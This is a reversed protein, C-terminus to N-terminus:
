FSGCIRRTLIKINPTIATIDGFELQSTILILANEKGVKPVSSNPLLCFKYLKHLVKQHNTAHLLSLHSNMSYWSKNKPDYQKSVLHNNLALYLHICTVVQFNYVFHADNTLYFDFLFSQVESRHRETVNLKQLKENAQKTGTQVVHKCQLLLHREGRIHSQSDCCSVGHFPVHFQPQNSKHLHRTLPSHLKTTPTTIYENALNSRMYTSQWDVMPTFFQPIHSSKRHVGPIM